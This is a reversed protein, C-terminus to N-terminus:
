KQMTTVFKAGRRTPYYIPDGSGNYGEKLLEFQVLTDLDDELFIPETIEPARGGAFALNKSRGFGKSVMILESGSEYFEKLISIAQDSLEPNPNVAQALGSFGDVQEFIQALTENVKRFESLIEDHNIRLLYEVKALLDTNGEIGVKLTEHRNEDLWELFEKTDGANGDREERYARILGVISAFAFATTVPEMQPPYNAENSSAVPFRFLTPSLSFIALALSSM